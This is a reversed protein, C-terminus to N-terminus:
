NRRLLLYTIWDDLVKLNAAQIEKNKSIAGDFAQAIYQFADGDYQSIAGNIAAPRHNVFYDQMIINLNLIGEGVMTDLIAVARQYGCYPQRPYESGLSLMNLYETIAENLGRYAEGQRIGAIRNGDSDLTSSLQHISEHSTNARLIDNSFATRMVSAEGNNYGMVSPDPQLLRFQEESVYYNTGRLNAIQEDTVYGGFTNIFNNTMRGNAWDELAILVEYPASVDSIRGYAYGSLPTNNAALADRMQILARVYEVQSYNGFVDQNNDFDLFQQYTVEDTLIKELTNIPILAATDYLKRGDVTIGDKFLSGANNLNMFPTYEPILNNLRDMMKTSLIVHNASAMDALQNLAQMYSEKQIYGFDAINNEYDLFQKYTVEDNIISLLKDIPVMELTDDLDTSHLTMTEGLKAPIGAEILSSKMYVTRGNIVVKEHGFISNVKEAIKTNLLKEDINQKAQQLPKISSLADFALSQVGARLAIAGMNKFGGKSDFVAAYNEFFGGLSADYTYIIRAGTDLSDMAVATAAALVSKVGSFAIRVGVSATNGAIARMAADGFIKGTLAQGGKGIVAQVVGDLVGKVIGYGLAQGFSAGNDFAQNAGTGVGRVAAIAIGAPPCIVAVAAMVIMEAGMSIYGALASDYKLYSKENIMQGIGTEEYFWYFLSDVAKYQVIAKTGDMVKKAWEAAQEHGVFAVALLYTAGAVLAGGLMVLGDIVGELINLIGRLLSTAGVAVTAFVSAFVNAVTNVADTIWSWISGLISTAPGSVSAGTKAMSTPDVASFATGTVSGSSGVQNMTLNVSKQSAQVSSVNSTATELVPEKYSVTNPTSEMRPLPVNNAQTLVENNIQVTEKSKFQITGLGM